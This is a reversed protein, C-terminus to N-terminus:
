LLHIKYLYIFFKTCWTSFQSLDWKWIIYFDVGTVCIGYNM